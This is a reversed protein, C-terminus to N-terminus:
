PLVAQLWGTGELRRAPGLGTGALLGSLEEVTYLRGRPAAALLWVATLYPDLDAYDGPTAFLENCVVRGGPALLSRASALAAAIEDPGLFHLIHGFFVIDFPGHLSGLTAVDGAVWTARSAIGM